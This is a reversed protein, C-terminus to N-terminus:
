IQDAKGLWYEHSHLRNHRDLEISLLGPYRLHDVGVVVRGRHILQSLARNKTQYAIVRNRGSVVKAIANAHSATAFLRANMENRERAVYDAFTRRGVRQKRRKSARKNNMKFEALDSTRGADQCDANPRNVASPTEHRLKKGSRLKM